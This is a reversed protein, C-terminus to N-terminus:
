DFMWVWIFVEAPYVVFDFVADSDRNYVGGLEKNPNPHKLGLRDREYRSIHLCVANHGEAPCNTKMWDWRIYTGGNVYTPVVSPLSMYKVTFTEFTLGKAKKVIEYIAKFHSKVWLSKNTTYIITKVHM